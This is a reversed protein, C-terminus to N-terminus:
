VAGAPAIDEVKVEYGFSDTEKLAAGVSALTETSLERMAEKDCEEVTRICQSLGLSKLAALTDGISKIVISTSRRFSLTGFVLERSRREAFDARHAHAFEKLQRELDARLAKHPECARKAEQKARDIADNATAEIAEIRRNIEGIKRLVQDADDYTTLANTILRTRPM